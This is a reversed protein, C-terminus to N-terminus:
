GKTRKLTRPSKKVSKGYVRFCDRITSVSQGTEKAIARWSMPPKRKRLDVVRQRDFVKWPRGCHVGKAQAVALGVDLADSKTDETWGEVAVKGERADVAVVIRKPFRRCAEAVV